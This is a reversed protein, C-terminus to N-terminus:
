DPSSPERWAADSTTECIRRAAWEELDVLNYVVRRGLKRFLPGGGTVRYKELTRPSLRLFAAAEGNSYFTSAATARQIPM